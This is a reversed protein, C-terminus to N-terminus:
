GTVGGPGAREMLVVPDGHYTTRAFEAFGLREAVVISGVNGTSILCTRRPAPHTDDCWALAAAMAEVALGRGQAQSVLAWGCEISGEIAPALPRRMEHFGCEGFFTGDTRDEIVFFGFRFHVWMGGQRLFRVWAAERTLPAGGIFRVVSPETWMRAYADFDDLRHPRLRLRPTDM